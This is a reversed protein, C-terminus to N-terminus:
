TFEYFMDLGPTAGFTECEAKVCFTTALTVEADLYKPLQEMINIKFNLAEKCFTGDILVTYPPEYHFHQKYFIMTKKVHKQRKIKGM